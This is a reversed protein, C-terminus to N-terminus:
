CNCAPKHVSECALDTHSRIVGHHNSAVCLPNGFVTETPGAANRSCTTSRRSSQARSRKPSRWCGCETPGPPRLAPPSRPLFRIWWRVPLPVPNLWVAVEDVRQLPFFTRVLRALLRSTFLAPHTEESGLIAVPVIPVGAELALFAFGGRGFRRLRYAERAPKQFGRVGEPFVGLLHGHALVWRADERSAYAAGAKRYLHSVLPLMNFLETGITRVRRPVPAENFLALQLMAADYPIGGGGHNAAIVAAGSAPVHEIGEVRVRFYEFYLTNCLHWMVEAVVPDLGLADIDYTALRLHRILSPWTDFGLRGLPPIAVDSFDVAGHLSCRDEGKVVPFGCAFGEITRDGCRRAPDVMDALREGLLARRAAADPETPAPAVTVPETLGARRRLEASVASVMEQRSGAPDVTLRLTGAMEALEEPSLAALALSLDDTM